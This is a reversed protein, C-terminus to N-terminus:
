KWHEPITLKTGDQKEIEDPLLSNKIDRASLYLVFDATNKLEKSGGRNPPFVVIVRKPPTMARIVEIPPVLDSDGSILYAVDFNNEYADKVMQTAINVDSKKEEPLHNVNGCKSCIIDSSITRCRMCFVERFLYRGEIMQLKHCQIQLANLFTNQRNQKDPNGKIRATFYKVCVLQRGQVLTEALKQIDLWYVRKPLRKINKRNITSARLGFYLNFGDVYVIAREKSYSM